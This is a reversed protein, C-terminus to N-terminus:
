LAGDRLAPANDGGSLIAKLDDVDITYRAISTRIVLGVDPHKGSFEIFKKADRNYKRKAAREEKPDLGDEPIFINDTITFAAVGRWYADDAKEHDLKPDYLKLEKTIVNEFRGPVVIAKEDGSEEIVNGCNWMQRLRTPNLRDCIAEKSWEWKSSDPELNSSYALSGLTSTIKQRIIKHATETGSTLLQMIVPISEPVVDRITKFQVQRVVSLKDPFDVNEGPYILSIIEEDSLAPAAPM